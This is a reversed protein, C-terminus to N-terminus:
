WRRRISGNRLNSKPPHTGNESKDTLILPIYSAAGSIHTTHNLSILQINAYLKKKEKKLQNTKRHVQFVFPLVHSVFSFGLYFLHFHDDPPVSTLSVSSNVRCRKGSLRFKWESFVSLAKVKLNSWGLRVCNWLEWQGAMINLECVQVCM